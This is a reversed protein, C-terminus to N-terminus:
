RPGVAVLGLAAEHRGDIRLLDNVMGDFFAGVMCAGLGAAEAALYVNQAMHGRGLLHVPLPPLPRRTKGAFTSAPCIRVGTLGAGLVVYRSYRCASLWGIQAASSLLYHIQHCAPESISYRETAPVPGPGTRLYGNHVCTSGTNTAQAGACIPSNQGCTVCTGPHTRSKQARM